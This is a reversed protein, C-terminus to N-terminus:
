LTGDKIRRLSDDITERSTWTASVAIIQDIRQTDAKAQALDARLRDRENCVADFLGKWNDRERTLEDALGCTSHGLGESISREREGDCSKSLALRLADREATVAALERELTRAFDAKVMNIEKGDSKVVYYAADSRPTPTDNPTSM